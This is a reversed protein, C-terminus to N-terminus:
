NEKMTPDFSDPLLNLLVEDDFKIFVVDIADAALDAQCMVYVQRELTDLTKGTWYEVGSVVDRSFEWDISDNSMSVTLNNKNLEDIGINIIYLKYETPFASEEALTDEDTPRASSTGPYSMDAPPKRPAQPTDYGLPNPAPERTMMFIFAGLIFVLLVVTVINRRSRFKGNSAM